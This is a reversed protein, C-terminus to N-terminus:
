NALEAASRYLGAASGGSITAFGVVTAVWVPARVRDRRVMFRLLRSFGALPEPQALRRRSEAGNVASSGNTPAASPEPATSTATLASM